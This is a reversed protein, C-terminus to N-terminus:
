NIINLIKNHFHADIFDAGHNDHGFIGFAGFTIVQSKDMIKAIHGHPDGSRPELFYDVFSCKVRSQWLVMMM